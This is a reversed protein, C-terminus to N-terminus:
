FSCSSNAASYSLLVKNHIDLVEFWGIKRAKAQGQKGDLRLM